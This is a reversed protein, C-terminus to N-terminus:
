GCKRQVKLVMLQEKRLGAWNVPRYTNNKFGVPNRCTAHRFCGAYISLGTNVETNVGTICHRPTDLELPVGGFTGALYYYTMGRLFYAEGTLRDALAPTVIGKSRATAIIALHLTQGSSVSIRMIGYLLSSVLHRHFRISTGNFTVVGTLGTMRRSIRM